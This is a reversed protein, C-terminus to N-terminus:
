SALINGISEALNYLSDKIFFLKDKIFNNKGDKANITLIFGDKYDTVEIQVNYRKYKDIIFEKDIENTAYVYIYNNGLFITQRIIYKYYNFVDEINLILFDVSKKNM